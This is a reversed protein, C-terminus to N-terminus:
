LGQEKAVNVLYDSIIKTNGSGQPVSCIQECYGLVDAPELGALKITNM